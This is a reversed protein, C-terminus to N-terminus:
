APGQLAYIVDIEGDHWEPEGELLPLRQRHRVDQESSQSNACYAEKSDFVSAIYYNNLNANM